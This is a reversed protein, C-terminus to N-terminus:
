TLNRVRDWRLFSDLKRWRWQRRGAPGFSKGSSSLRIRLHNALRNTLRGARFCGRSTARSSGPDAVNTPSMVAKKRGISGM